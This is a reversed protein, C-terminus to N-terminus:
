SKKSFCKRYLYQLFRGLGSAAAASKDLVDAVVIATGTVKAQAPPADPLNAIVADTFETTGVVTANPVGKALDGTIIRSAITKELAVAIM